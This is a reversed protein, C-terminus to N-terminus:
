RGGVVPTLVYYTMSQDYLNVLGGFSVTQTCLAHPPTFADPTVLNFYHGATSGEAVQYVITSLGPNDRILDMYAAYSYPGRFTMEGKLGGAQLYEILAGLTTSGGAVANVNRPPMYGLDQLLKVVSCHGCNEMGILQGDMGMNIKVGTPPPGEPKSPNSPFQPFKEVPKGPRTIPQTTVLDSGGGPGTSPGSGSFPPKDGPKAPTGPKVPRQTLKPPRGPGIMMAQGLCTQMLGAIAGRQGDESCVGTVPDIATIASLLANIMAADNIADIPDKWNGIRDLLGGKIFSAYGEPDLLFGVMTYLQLERILKDRPNDGQPLSALFDDLRKKDGASLQFAKCTKGRQNFAGPAFGEFGLEPLSSATPFRNPGATKHPDKASETAALNEDTCVVCINKMRDLVTPAMCGDAGQENGEHYMTRSPPGYEIRKKGQCVDEPDYLGLAQSKGQSEDKLGSKTALDAEEPSLACSGSTVAVIIAAVAGLFRVCIKSPSKIIM